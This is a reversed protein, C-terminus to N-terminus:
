RQNAAAAAKQADLREYYDWHEQPSADEPPEPHSAAPVGKPKPSTASDLQAQREPSLKAKPKAGDPAPSDAPSKYGTESKFQRVISIVEAGDVVDEANRQVGERVYAPANEFWNSFEPSAAVAEYDSHKEIVLAYQEDSNVEAQRSTIGDVQDSIGAVKKELKTELAKFAEEVPALVEPYDEKAKRFADSGFIEAAEPDEVDGGAPEATPPKAKLQNITRQLGGVTGHARKMATTAEAASTTVADFAAKQEPTSGEWIDPVPEEAAPEAAPEEAPEAPPKTAEAPPEAAPEEALEAKAAPPAEGKAKAADVAEFDAWDKQAQDDASEAATVNPSEEAAAEADPAPTAAPTDDTKKAKAM